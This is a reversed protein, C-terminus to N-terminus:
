PGLPGQLEKVSWTCLFAEPNRCLILVTRLLREYLGVMFRYAKKRGSLLTKATSFSFDYTAIARFDRKEM